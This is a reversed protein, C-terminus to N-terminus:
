KQSIDQGYYKEAIQSIVGQEKLQSLAKDFQVRLKQGNEDRNFPYGVSEIVLPEGLLTFPLNNRKIEALLIPKSNIYGDVRNYVLDYMAGDRTEYTRITIDDDPFAKKLINIHNSGLVGSITKGKLDELSKIEHNNSNIVIQSGYYSYPESFDYKEQRAPTMAVANAVTDLRHAELQAMLGGFEATVWEVQYGLQNAVAETVEIDFGVLKGDQKFGNPYSQGTTGIKLVPKTSNEQAQNVENSSNDCGSLVLISLLLTALTAKIKM